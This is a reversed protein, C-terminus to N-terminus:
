RARNGDSDVDADADDGSWVVRVCTGRGLPQDLEFRGFPLTAARERMNRIGMGNGVTAAGGRGDDSIVLEFGGGVRQLRLALHTAGSHRLANALAEDVIRVLAEHYKGPVDSAAAIAADAVIGSRRAFDRTSTELRQALPLSSGPSRMEDLIHVLESQIEEAIRRAEEIRTGLPSAADALLRTATALQMNLAFAKQKVTDHLDRALKQREELSALRARALVLEHLDDAMRDLEGALRGLEDNSADAIPSSFDGRRWAGTASVIRNLRATVYRSLFFGSGVSFVLLYSLLIRWELGSSLGLRRWPVPLRLEVLVAGTVEGGAARLPVAYRRELESSESAQLLQAAHAGRLRSWGVDDRGMGDVMWGPSAPATGLSHGNRDVIRAALPEDSLEMLVKASKGHGLAHPEELRLLMSELVRALEAPTPRPMGAWRAQVDEAADTVAAALEGRRLEDELERFELWLVTSKVLLLALLSLAVYFLALKSILSRIRM